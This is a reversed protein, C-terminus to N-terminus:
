DDDGAPEVRNLFRARDVVIRRVEGHAVVQGDDHEAQFDFVLVRGEIRTLEARVSVAADLPSPREHQLDLRMGVSTQSSDLAPNIAACTAEEAWTLVRSSALVPVQGTHLTSALDPLTVEHTVSATAGVEPM